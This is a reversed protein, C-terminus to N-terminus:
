LEVGAQAFQEMARWRMSSPTTGYGNVVLVLSKGSRSQRVNQHGQDFAKKIATDYQDQWKKRRWTDYAMGILYSPISHSRNIGPMTWVPYDGPQIEGYIWRQYEGLYGGGFEDGSMQMWCHRKGGGLEAYSVWMVPWWWAHTKRGDERKKWYIVNQCYELRQDNLELDVDDTEALLIAPTNIDYIDGKYAYIRYTSM